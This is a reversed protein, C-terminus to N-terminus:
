EGSPTEEEEKEQPIYVGVLKEPTANKVTDYGMLTIIEQQERELTAGTELFDFAGNLNMNTKISTNTGVEAPVEWTEILGTGYRAEFKNEGSMQKAVNVEWVELLSQSAQAYELLRCMETDSLLAELEIVVENGGGSVVTGDKTQTKEAKSENKYTHSVQLGLLGAKKFPREKALRFMLVKDKGAIAAEM